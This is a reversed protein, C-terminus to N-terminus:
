STHIYEGASGDKLRIGTQHFVLEVADACQDCRIPKEYSYTLTGEINRLFDGLSGNLEEVPTGRM